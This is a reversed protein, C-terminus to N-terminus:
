DPWDTSIEMPIEIVFRTGEGLVSECSIRGGHKEEIIQQSIALGLGTGKGVPKTTFFPEFLKTVTVADMGPGNDAIALRVWAEDVVATSIRIVNPDAEIEEYTKGQNQAEFADIANGILNMVVQNLQSPHCPVDPLAGYDRIVEIKPRNGRAKLRNNLIVLTSKIGDHIDVPQKEGNDLRSFNRLSLALERILTTGMELSMFLRSLDATLFDLDIAKIWDKIEPAPEPTHKQYLKMLHMLDQMYDKAPEINGALFHVPNNMEHAIGALMQGLSSMKESQILQVQAQELQARQAKGEAVVRLTKELTMVLDQFNLPKTLFDFAGNNMAARINDMDGYASVVVTKPPESLDNLKGLLELGDMVPMNIDTLVVEIASDGEAAETVKEYAQAGDYAFIFVYKQQRIERRFKQCILAEIDPEDDVVLIQCTM